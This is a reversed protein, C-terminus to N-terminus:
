TYIYIYIYMIICVFLIMCLHRDITIYVYTYIHIYANVHTYMYIYIDYVVFAVFSHQRFDEGPGRKRTESAIQLSSGLRPLKSDSAQKSDDRGGEARGDDGSLVKISNLSVLM